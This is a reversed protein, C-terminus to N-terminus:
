EGADRTKPKNVNNTLKAYDMDEMVVEERTIDNIEGEEMTHVETEQVGARRETFGCELIPTTNKDSVQV